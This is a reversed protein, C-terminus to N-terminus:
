ELLFPFLRYFKEQEIDVVLPPRQYEDTTLKPSFSIINSTRHIIYRIPFYTHVIAAMLLFAIVNGDALISLFLTEDVQETHLNRPISSHDIGKYTKLAGEHLCNSDQKRNLFALFLLTM